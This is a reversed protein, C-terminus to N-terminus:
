FPVPVRVPANAQVATISLELTPQGTRTQVIRTPFSIKGFMAYDTYTTDILLDTGSSQKIWTRVREVQSKSNIFGVFRQGGSYFSVETGSGAPRLAPQNALAAKLFGHPTVWIAYRREAAAGPNAQPAQPMLTNVANAPKSRRVAATTTMPSGLPAAAFSVDWATAGNVAYIQRNDASASVTAVDVATDRVVEISMASAPYDISVEYSKLVIGGGPSASLLPQAGTHIVGTGGYKISRLDVGGLAAVAAEIATPDPKAPPKDDPVQALVSSGAALLAALCVWVQGTRSTSECVRSVKASKM